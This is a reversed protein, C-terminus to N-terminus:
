YDYLVEKAGAMYTVSSTKLPIPLYAELSPSGGCTAKLIYYNDNPIDKIDTTLTIINKGKTNNEDKIKIYDKESKSFWSWTIDNYLNNESDKIQPFDIIKGDM